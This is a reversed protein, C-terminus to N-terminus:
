ISIEKIDAIKKFAQYTLGILNKRNTKINEDEHNVFVKDFFEDLEPKLGFLADLQEDYTNFDKKATEMYRNYLEKEANEEFLDPNIDLTINTNVDKIINAVRKITSIYQKFIM